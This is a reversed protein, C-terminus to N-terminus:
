ESRLLEKQLVIKDFIEEYKSLIRMPCFQEFLNNISFVKSNVWENNWDNIMEILGEYISLSNKNDVAVGGGYKKILDPIVGNAPSVCLIPRGASAYDSLKSLLLIGTEYQGELLLLVEYNSLDSLMLEYPKSKHFFITDQLNYKFTLSIFDKDFIGFFHLSLKVTSENKIKAIAELLPKIEINSGLNGAHCLSFTDRSIRKKRSNMPARISVHPIIEVQSSNNRLIRSNYHDWLEKSPYTNFDAKEFVDKVLLRYIISKILNRDKLLPRINDTPDNWNAIWPIKLKHNIKKGILHPIDSPMRTMLIQYNRSKNLQVALKYVKYGWRIGQIPYKFFFFSYVIESIRIFRNKSDGVVFYTSSRLPEWLESWGTSYVQKSERTIVDVEHGAEKLVLVLKSNVIAESFEYPAFGTTILLIRYRKREM